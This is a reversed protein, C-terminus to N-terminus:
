RLTASLLSVRGTLGARRRAAIGGARISAQMFIPARM